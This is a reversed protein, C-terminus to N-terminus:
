RREKECPSTVLGKHLIYAEIKLNHKSTSNRTKPIFTGREWKRDHVHRRSLNVEQLEWGSFGVMVRTDNLGPWNQFFFHNFSVNVNDM